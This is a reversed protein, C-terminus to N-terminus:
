IRARTLRILGDRTTWGSWTKGYLLAEGERARRAAGLMLLIAM